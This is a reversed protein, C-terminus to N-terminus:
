LAAGRTGRPVGRENPAPLDGTVVVSMNADFDFSSDLRVDRHSTEPLEALGVARDFHSFDDGVAITASTFVVSRMEPLWRQALDSGVDIKEATLRESAFREGHARSTRPMSTARTRGTRWLGYVTSFSACSALRSPLSRPVSRCRSRSCPRRTPSRESSSTWRTSRGPPPTWSWAGSRARVPPSTWGCRRPTTAAMAARSAGRAGHVAEFLDALAVSARSASSAAKTLLGVLPTSGECAMADVMAAHIVGTQTGGLRELLTRAEAGSVEVAWQRRAEAEFGHAEDVVWDRIPPLIRGEAEVDRLLLSHNTM